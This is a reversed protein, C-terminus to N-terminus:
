KIARIQGIESVRQVVEEGEMDLQGPLEKTQETAVVRGDDKQSLFMTQELTDAPALTAKADIRFTASDRGKTPAVTLTITVKRPATARTNPDFVNELVKSWAESFRENLAGDMIQDLKEIERFDM